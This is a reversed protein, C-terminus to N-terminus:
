RSGMGRGIAVATVRSSVVVVGGSGAHTAMLGIVVLRYIWIVCRKAYWSRTFGTMRGIGAPRWSGERDM